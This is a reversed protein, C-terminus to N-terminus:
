DAVEGCNTCIRKVTGDDFRKIRVRKAKGCNKCVLAIKAISIPAEREIIGAQTRVDGTRKQHKKILNIGGVLVLHKKPFVSNVEGRKGRENGTIVQVTDGKRIKNM